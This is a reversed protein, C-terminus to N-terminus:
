AFVELLKKPDTQTGQSWSDILIAGATYALLADISFGDIGELERYLNLRENDIVLERKLPDEAESARLILASFLTANEGGAVQAQDSDVGLSEARQRAIANRIGIEFEAFGKLFSSSSDRSLELLFNFYGEWLKRVIADPLSGDDSTIVEQIFPPLNYITEFDERPHVGREDFLERELLINEANATDIIYLISNVLEGDTTGSTEDVIQEVINKFPVSLPAVEDPLPPLATMLRYYKM